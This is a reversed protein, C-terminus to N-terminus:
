ARSEHVQFPLTIFDKRLVPLKVAARAARLDELSGGFGARDTLVSVCAAGGREYASALQAPDLADNIEGRSPSRRKVEAILGQRAFPRLPPPEPLSLLSRARADAAAQAVLKELHTM